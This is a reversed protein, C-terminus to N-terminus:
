IEVTFDGDKVNEQDIRPRIIESFSSASKQKNSTLFSALKTAINQVGRPISGVIRLLQGFRRKTKKCHVLIVTINDKGGNRNALEVLQKCAAQPNNESNYIVRVIEEEPVMNSLGDTCLLLWDRDLLIDEEADIQITEEAGLARLLANKYISKNAEEYSMGHKLQEELLSHDITLRELCGSRVRYIRSDGVHALTMINGHIRVSSITTAMGRQQANQQGMEYIATNARRIGSLMQNTERSFEEKHQEPEYHHTGNVHSAVIQIAMNSAVEGANEGGVGDAVVFLGLDLNVIFCDENTTRVQGVDTAAGITFNFGM